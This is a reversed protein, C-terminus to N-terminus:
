QWYIQGDSGPFCTPSNVFGGMGNSFERTVTDPSVFVEASGTVGPSLQPAYSFNPQPGVSKSESSEGGVDGPEFGTANVLQEIVQVEYDKGERIKGALGTTTGVFTLVTELGLEGLDKRSPLVPSFHTPQVCGVQPVTEPVWVKNGNIDEFNAPLEGDGVPAKGTIVYTQNALDQFVGQEDFYGPNYAITGSANAVSTEPANTADVGPNTNVSQPASQNALQSSGNDTTGEVSMTGNATGKTTGTGTGDSGGGDGGGDEGGDEAEYSLGHGTPDGFTLPNDWVYAFPNYDRREFRHGIVSDPSIFAALRPSYFRANMDVLGLNGERDHDGFGYRSTGDPNSGAPDGGLFPTAANTLLNGYPDRRARATVAGTDSAEAVVSGVKDTLYFTTASRVTSATKVQDGVIKGNALFRCREEYTGTAANYALQYRGNMLTVRYSGSSGYTTAVREGLGDHIITDVQNGNVKEIASIVEDSANYTLTTGPTDSMRGWVDVQYNDTGVTAGNQVTTITRMTASPSLSYNVTEGSWARQTLNGDADYQYTVTPASLNPTWTTLRNLNDYNLSENWSGGVGTMAVSSALGDPWYTYSEQAQTSPGVWTQASLQGTPLYYNTSRTMATGGWSHLAETTIEGLANRAAAQWMTWGNMALSSVDGVYPDYGYALNFATYSGPMNAPYYLNQLRGYQDYFYFGNNFTKAPAGNLSLQWAEYFLRGSADYELHVKNPGDFADVLKGVSNTDAYLGQYSKDWYYTRNMGSGSVSTLRGLADRGYTINDVQSGNITQKYAGVV